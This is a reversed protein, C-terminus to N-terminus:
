AKGGTEARTGKRYYRRKGLDCEPGLLVEGFAAASRGLGPKPDRRVPGRENNHLAREAPRRNRRNGGPKPQAREGRVETRIPVPMGPGFHEWKQEWTTLLTNVREWRRPRCPGVSLLFGQLQLAKEHTWPYEFEWPGFPGCPRM